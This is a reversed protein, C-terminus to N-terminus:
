SRSSGSVRGGIEPSDVGYRYARFVARSRQGRHTCVSPNIYEWVVTGDPTVEFLRGSRGETILTNGNPLRQAGSVNMSFFSDRPKGTYEWAIESSARDVEIVRSYNRRSGNDFVLVRGNELWTPNHQSSTQDAWRWKVAGTARDVIVLTSLTNYSM